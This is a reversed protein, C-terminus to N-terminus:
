RLLLNSERWGGAPTSHLAHRNVMFSEPFQQRKDCDNDASQPACKVQFWDPADQQQRREDSQKAATENVFLPSSQILAEDVM